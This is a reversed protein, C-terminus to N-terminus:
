KFPLPDLPPLGLRKRELNLLNEEADEIDIRVFYGKEDLARELEEHTIKVLNRKKSLAFMLVFQPAGFADLLGAPVEGFSDKRALYLFANRKKLSKYVFVLKDGM